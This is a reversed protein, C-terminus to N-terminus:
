RNLGYFDFSLVMEELGEVMRVDDFHQIYDFAAM